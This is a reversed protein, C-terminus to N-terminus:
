PESLSLYTFGQTKSVVELIEERSINKPIRRIFLTKQNPDFGFYPAGVINFSQKLEIENVNSYSM